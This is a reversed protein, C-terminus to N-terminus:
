HNEVPDIWFLKANVISGSGYSINKDTLADYIVIEEYDRLYAAKDGSPSTKFLLPRGIIKFHYNVRANGKQIEQVDTETVNYKNPINADSAYSYVKKGEKDWMGKGGGRVSPILQGNNLIVIYYGFPHEEIDDRYHAEFLISNGDLSWEPPNNRSPNVQKMSLSPPGMTLPASDPNEIDILMLSFGDKTESGPPGYYYALQHGNPSWSPSSIFGNSSIKSMIKPQDDGGYEQIILDMNSNGIAWAIRKGDESIAVFPFPNERERELSPFKIAQKKVEFSSNVIGKFWGETRSKMVFHGSRSIDFCRIDKALQTRLPAGSIIRLLDINGSEDFFVVAENRVVAEAFIFNICSFVFLLRVLKMHMDNDKGIM